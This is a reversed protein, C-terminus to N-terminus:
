FDLQEYLGLQKAASILADSPDMWQLKVGSDSIEKKLAVFVQLGATDAKQVKDAKLEISSSVELAELLKQRLTSANAININKECTFTTKNSM